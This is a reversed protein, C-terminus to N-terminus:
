DEVDDDETDESFAKEVCKIKRGVGQNLPTSLKLPSVVVATHKFNLGRLTAYLIYHQEFEM